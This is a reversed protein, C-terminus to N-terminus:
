GKGFKSVDESDSNLRSYLEAILTDQKDLKKM